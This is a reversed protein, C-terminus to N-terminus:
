VREHGFLNEAGEEGDQLHIIVLRVRQYGLALMGKTEVDEAGVLGFNVLTRRIEGQNNTYSIGM